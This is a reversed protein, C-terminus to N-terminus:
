KKIKKRIQPPNTAYIKGFAITKGEDRITFRGLQQIDDYKEICIAKASKIHAIVIGKNQVFKPFKQITKQTKPDKTELLRVVEIEQVSTHIHLVAEYGASFVSKHELLNLIFIQAVFEDTVPCPNQINSIVYGQHVYDENLQSAKVYIRINEGPRAKRLPGEDNEILIVNFQTRGPMIVLTDGTNITGSEVKGMIIIFGREKIKDLVPIRLPGNEDRDLPPLQDLLDLFSGGTWWPCVSSTVKDKLNAGSYGSVPVFFVDKQNYGISKFFPLLKDKIEIYREEAWQVTEEDMKNVLVLLRKVGVTKAIISHERTQGDREFGAEFEGRKASIVLCAIDAQAVGSIMNPVYNRHGPADLITYRKNTTTFSARGCEVTKGKAREEENTDMIYALYWTSRNNEIAEKEYKEILRKDVMGFLYLINGSLTSKGADVHGIFVINLHERNDETLKDSTPIVIPDSDDEEITLDLKNDVIEVDDDRQDFDLDTKDNIDVNVKTNIENKNEVKTNVKENDVNKNVKENNEIKENKIEVKADVKADQKQSNNVQPPNQNPTENKPQPTNQLPTEKKPPETPNTEKKPQEKTTDNKPPSWTQGPV